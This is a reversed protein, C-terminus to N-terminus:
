RSASDAMLRMQEAFTVWTPRIRGVEELLSEFDQRRVNDLNGDITAQMLDALIASEDQADNLHGRFRQLFQHSSTSQARSTLKRGNRANIKLSPRTM